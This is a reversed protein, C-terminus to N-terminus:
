TKRLQSAAQDLHEALDRKASRVIEDFSHFATKGKPLDVPQQIEVYGGRADSLSFVVIHPTREEDLVVEGFEVRVLKIAESM